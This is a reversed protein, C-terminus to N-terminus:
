ATEKKRRSALGAVGMGLLALTTPETLDAVGGVGDAGYAAIGNSALETGAGTVMDIDLTTGGATFGYLTSGSFNLGYVNNVGIDGILTGSGTATNLSVLLDGSGGTASMFLNGLNDFALDGSSSYGTSGVSSASGSGLNITYLGTGGSGYLTGTSSFTLGNIFAGTSGISTAAGTTQNISELTGSGTVGYLLNSIPDLAIDYMAGMGSNGILISTNTTTDLDYLNGSVDGIFVAQAQTACTITAAFALAPTLKIKM